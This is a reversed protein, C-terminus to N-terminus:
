PSPSIPCPIRSLIQSMPRRDSSVSVGHARHGAEITVLLSGSVMGDTVQCKMADPFGICSTSQLLEWTRM